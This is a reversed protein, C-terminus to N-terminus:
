IFFMVIILFQKSWITRFPYPKDQEVYRNKQTERRSPRGNTLKTQPPLPPFFAMMGVWSRAKVPIYPPINGVLDPIDPSLINPYICRWIHQPYSQPYYTYIMRIGPSRFMETKSLMRFSLAFHTSRHKMGGTDWLALILRCCSQWWFYHDPVQGLNM